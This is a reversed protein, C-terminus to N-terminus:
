NTDSDEPSLNPGLYLNISLGFNTRRILLTLFCNMWTKNLLLFYISPKIRVINSQIESKRLHSLTSKQVFYHLLGM